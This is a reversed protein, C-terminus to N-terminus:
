DVAALFSARRVLARVPGPQAGLEWVTHASLTAAAIGVLVVIKERRRGPHRKNSSRESQAINGRGIYIMVGPGDLKEARKNKKAWRRTRVDVPDM